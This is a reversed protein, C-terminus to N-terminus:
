YNIVGDAVVDYTGEDLNLEALWTTAGSANEFRGTGGKWEYSLIAKGTAPDLVGTFSAKLQDGNAATLTVQGDDIKMEAGMPKVTAERHLSFHGLHTATGTGDAVLHGQDATFAGHEVLHFPRPRITALATVVIFGALGLTMLGISGRFLYRKMFIRRNSTSIRRQAIPAAVGAKLGDSMAM